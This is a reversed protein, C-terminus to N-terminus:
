HHKKRLFIVGATSLLGLVSLGTILLILRDNSTLIDANLVGSNRGLFNAYTPYARLIVDYRAITKQLDNGSVDASGAKIATQVNADAGDFVDKLATWTSATVAKASCEADTKGLFQSGYAIAAENADQAVTITISKAWVRNTMAFTLANSYPTFTYDTATTSVSQAAEYNVAIDSSGSDTQYANIVVSTAIQTGPLSLVLQNGSSATAKNGMMIASTEPSAGVRINLVSTVTLASANNIYTAFTSTTLASYSTTKSTLVYQSIPAVVSIACTATKTLTGDSASLNLVASGTVSGSLLTVLEAATESISVCGAPSVESLSWVYNTPTFNTAVAQLVDSHGGKTLTLSSPDIAVSPEVISLTKTTDAYGTAKAVLDVSGAAVATVVNGSITACGSPNANALSWTVGAADATYTESHSVLISDAGSITIAPDTAAEIFNATVGSYKWAGSTSSSKVVIAYYLATNSAQWEMTYTGPDGLAMGQSGKGATISVFSFTANDSSSLLYMTGNAVASGGTYAFTLKGAKAFALKNAFAFATDTSKITTGDAYKSYSALNCGSFANKNTGASGGGGGYTLIWGSTSGSTATEYAQYTTGSSGVIAATTASQLTDGVAAGVEQAPNLPRGSLVLAGLTLASLAVLGAIDRRKM